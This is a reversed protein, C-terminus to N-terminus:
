QFESLSFIGIENYEGIKNTIYSKINPNNYISDVYVILYEAGQRIKEQIRTSDM